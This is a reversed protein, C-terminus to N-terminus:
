PTSYIYEPDRRYRYTISGPGSVCTNLNMFGKPDVINGKGKSFGSTLAKDCLVHIIPFIQTHPGNPCVQFYIHRTIYDDVPKAEAEGSVTHGRAKSIHSSRNPVPGSLAYIKTLLKTLDPLCCLAKHLPRMGLGIAIHSPSKSRIIYLIRNVIGDHRAAM